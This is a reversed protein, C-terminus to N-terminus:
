KKNHELGTVGDILKVGAVWLFRAGLFVGFILRLGFWVDLSIFAVGALLCAIGVQLSRMAAPRGHFREYLQTDIFTGVIKGDRDYIRSGLGPNALIKHQSYSEAHTLSDFILPPEADRVCMTKVDFHFVAYQSDTM